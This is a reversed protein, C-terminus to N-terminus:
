CSTGGHVHPSRLGESSRTAGRRAGDDSRAGETEHEAQDSCDRARASLPEVPPVVGPPVVVVGIAGGGADLGFDAIVAM